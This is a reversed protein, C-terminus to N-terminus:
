ASSVAHSRLSYTWIIESERIQFMKIQIAAQETAIVPMLCHNLTEEHRTSFNEFSLQPTSWHISWVSLEPKSLNIYLHIILIKM